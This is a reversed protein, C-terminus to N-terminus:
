LSVTRARSFSPVCVRAAECEAPLRSRPGTSDAGGSRPDQPRTVAWRRPIATVRDRNGAIPPYGTVPLGRSQRGGTVRGRNGAIPPTDPLRGAVLEPRNFDVAVSCRDQDDFSSPRPGLSTGRRKM